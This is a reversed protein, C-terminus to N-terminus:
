SGAERVKRPRSPRRCRHSHPGVTLSVFALRLRRHSSKTVTRKTFRNAQNMPVQGRLVPIIDEAATMGIRYMADKSERAMSLFHRSGITTLAGAARADGTDAQNVPRNIKGDRAGAILHLPAHRVM